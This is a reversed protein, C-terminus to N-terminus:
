NNFQTATTQNRKFDQRAVTVQMVETEEFDKVKAEQFDVTAVTAEMEGRLDWLTGKPFAARVIAAQGQRIWM